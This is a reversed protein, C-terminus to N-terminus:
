PYRSRGALRRLRGLGDRPHGELGDPIKDVANLASDDRAEDGNAFSLRFTAGQAADVTAVKGGHSHMIEQVLHLGLGCGDRDWRERHFPEFIRERAEIPVGPGEDSVEIAGGETVSVEITGTAGGHAIANGLLNSVAHTIAHWDGEVIVSPRATSFAVEYGSAIALPTVEATVTRALEVLDVPDRRRGALSLREVDLMQGVMQSLRFLTRELETRRTGDPLGDIQVNLVALPTRLEHAVDAIFRQRRQFAEALRDLAANFARVLPLVEKVVGDESVRASLDAPDLRAAAKAVPRLAYLAIPVALPGGAMCILALLLMGVYFETDHHMYVLWDSLTFAQPGIGGASITLAGVKPELRVIAVDGTRVPASVDGLHAEKVEIPLSRRWILFAAPPRGFTLEQKESRVIFWLTPNRQAIERIRADPRLALRGAKDMEIDPAVLVAIVTPGISLDATQLMLPRALLSIALVLLLPGILFGLLLRRVLSPRLRRM